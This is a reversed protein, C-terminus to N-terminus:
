LRSPRDFKQNEIGIKEGQSTMTGCSQLPGVEDEDTTIEIEWGLDGTLGRLREAFKMFATQETNFHGADILAIGAMEAELAHHHTVDGTILLDANKEAAVDVLSGGAGGVVAVRQIQIDEQGTLIRYDPGFIRKVDEAVSCFSKKEKLTGIRGLGAGDTGAMEKLVTIDQLGLFEALIDNLGGPAVDLNTHVAVVSINSRIAEMVVNGPYTHIDIQSLPTFILPHHTLLLEAHRDLASHLAKPAPDLAMFIRTIKQSYSGVQLGPNDWSEALRAPALGELLDLVDRTDPLM